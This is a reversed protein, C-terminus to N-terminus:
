IGKKKFHLPVEQHCGNPIFGNYATVDVREGNEFKESLDNVSYYYTNGGRNGPASTQVINIPNCFAVSTEFCLLYPFKRTFWHSRSAMEGELSTPNHFPIAALLPMIQWIRYISSSIEIPYNFDYQASPWQYLLTGNGGDEFPPVIQESKLMYSYNTNKGLRLSFGLADPHKQLSELVNSLHFDRVFLNDDVLFFIYELDKFVPKTGHFFPANSVLLIRSWIRQMFDAGLKRNPTESILRYLWKKEPPPTTTLIIDLVNERFTGQKIFHVDPYERSLSLYQQELLPKTALYIVKLSALSADKCHLFFSRLTADLQMARDLSFILTLVKNTIGSNNEQNNRNKMINSINV